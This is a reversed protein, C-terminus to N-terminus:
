KKHKGAHLSMVPVISGRAIEGTHSRHLMSGFVGHHKPLLLVLEPQNRVIYDCVTDDTHRGEVFVYNAGTDELLTQLERSGAVQEESFGAATSTNLVHIRAHFTDQLFKLQDVPVTEAVDKMDCAFVIDRVPSFKAFPPVAIISFPLHRLLYTAHSGAFVREFASKGTTGIVIAFPQERLAIRELESFVTGFVTETTIHLKEGHTKRLDEKYKAINKEGESLMGEVPVPVPYEAIVPPPEVVHVLLLPAHLHISLQASYNVANHAIESYDTAAIFTKM